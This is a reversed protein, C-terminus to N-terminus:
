DGLVSPLGRRVAFADLRHALARLFEESDEPPADDDSAVPAPYQGLLANLERLTRTLATLTRAAREMERPPMPGAALQAVTAEIAPLVRAIAGQLRPVIEAPDPPPEASSPALADAAPEHHAEVPVSPALAPAVATAAVPVVPAVPEIWPTPPPGEASIPLRRRTWRWRRMRERLTSPSVGHDLCIDDVPKDTHEYDYRIQIWTEPSLEPPM